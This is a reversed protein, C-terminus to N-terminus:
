KYSLSAALCKTPAAYNPLVLPMGLDLHHPGSSAGGGGSIRAPYFVGTSHSANVSDCGFTSSSGNGATRKVPFMGYENAVIGAWYAGGGTNDLPSNAIAVYGDGTYNFGTTTSGDETGYTLKVKQVKDIYGYGILERMLQNGWWHEMGFVKVGTTYSGAGWFLGKDDM